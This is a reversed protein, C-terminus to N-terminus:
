NFLKQKAFLAPDPVSLHFKSKLIFELDSKLNQAHIKKKCNLEKFHDFCLLCQVEYHLIGATTLFM